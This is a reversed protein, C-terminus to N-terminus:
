ALSAIFSVVSFIHGPGGGVAVCPRGTGYNNSNAHAPVGPPPPPPAPYNGRLRELLKNMQIWDVLSVIFGLVIALYGNGVTSYTGSFTVSLLSLWISFFISSMWVPAVVSLMGVGCAVVSLSSGVICYVRNRSCSAHNTGSCDSICQILLVISTVFLFGASPGVKQLVPLVPKFLTAFTLFSVLFAIWSGFYGNGAPAYFPKVFTMTAVGAGWLMTFCGSLVTRKTEGAWFGPLALHVGMVVASVAVSTASCAIAWTVYGDCSGDHCAKAAEAMVIVGSILVVVVWGLAPVKKDQQAEM